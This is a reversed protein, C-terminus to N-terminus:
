LLSAAYDAAVVHGSTIICHRVNSEDGNVMYLFFRKIGKSRPMWMDVYTGAIRGDSEVINKKSKLRKRMNNELTLKTDIGLVLKKPPVKFHIRVEMDCKPFVHEQLVHLPISPQSSLM